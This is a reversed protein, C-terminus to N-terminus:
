DNRRGKGGFLLVLRLLQALSVALAAVYTMAAATLTKRAGKQEETTLIGSDTIANMARRSANFEVPLTILQFVASLGFCAIGAYIFGSSTVAESTFLLGILILPMALMSGINTIPIIAARIKIPFYSNAYQVAHGAEHCAVGIAATSTSDYVSDSLRITNSRPDFHDTLNGSVRTIQVGSVGNKLLVQRAAEAGTIRRTSMQKSYRNFTSNVRASAILAFIVCPLVLVLYTWDFGYYYFPM